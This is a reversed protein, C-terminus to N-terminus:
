LCLVFACCVSQGSSNDALNSRAINHIDQLTRRTSHIYETNQAPNSLPMGIELEFPMRPTRGFIMEYPSYGTSDHRSTNYAFVVPDPWQDWDDAHNSVFKSLMDQLTRNQREVQGDCQPHYANTRTKAIGMLDCLEHMLNSEFNAGQDSHLVTPPGFRSFVKHLLINAVTSAKQDKTPFAECWKSFHDMMVLIHRNGRATEPLPGMYDMAWFTFPEGVEIHQTPAKNNHTAIKRQACAHCNHIFTQVSTHIGPWYFRQRIREETRAVGMHGAFPSDHMAKVCTTILSQPLVIVYNPYSKRQGIARVLIGERIFLKDYHRLMKRFYVDQSKSVSPKPQNRLKLDCLKDFAATCEDTWVFNNCYEKSTLKTSPQAVTAYNPIFRRYYGTLGLFTRFTVQPSAFVCKALKVRFNNDRFRTLVTKLRDNHETLTKGFVIVDDLYCLCIEFTLGALIVEMARQFTAPATKLGFPMRTFEYLGNQTVFATKARDEQAVPIQWYGSRLDLLSFYKADKVSDLLDSILPLPHSDNDTIQNLKRYDVCFRLDGNKKRVLVIPSSWPSVSPTIIGNALMEQIQQDAEERYAYPLRRPRQKIPTSRGTNIKHSTVNCTDLKDDFVDSFESLSQALKIRDKENLHPSIAEHVQSQFDATESCTAACTANTTKTYQESQPKSKVLQHFEAIKRGATLEVSEHSSNLVRVPVIKGCPHAVIHSIHIGPEYARARNATIMGVDASTTKVLKGELVLETRAPIVVNETLCIETAAKYRSQFLLYSDGGHESGCDPPKDVTDSSEVVGSLHTGNPVVRACVPTKGHPGELVYSSLGGLMGRRLDVHNNVLFDWGLVCDFEINSSILFDNSYSHRSGSFNVNVNIKGVTKLSDGTISNCRETSKNVRRCDFDIVDQIDKKIFSKMSGTDVLAQVRVGEINCVVFPHTPINM